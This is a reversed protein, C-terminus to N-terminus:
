ELGGEESMEVSVGKAEGIAHPKDLRVTAQRVRSDAMIEKLIRAALKELLYGKSKEITAM